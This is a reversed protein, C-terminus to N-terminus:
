VYTGYLPFIQPVYIEHFAQMKRYSKHIFNCDM